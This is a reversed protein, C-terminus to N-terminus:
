FIKLSCILHLISVQNQIKNVLFKNSINPFHRSVKFSWKLKKESTKLKYKVCLLEHVLSHNLETICAHAPNYLFENTGSWIGDMVWKKVSRSNNSGYPNHLM